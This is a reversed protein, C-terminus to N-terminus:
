GRALATVKQFGALKHGKRARKGAHAALAAGKLVEDRPKAGRGSGAVRLAGALAAVAALPQAADVDMLTLGRGGNPQHKLEDLAFLLLRADASACAAQTDGDALPAPRLVADGDDISLFAKGSRNRAVMDGIRALLGFGGSGALLLMQEPAGA